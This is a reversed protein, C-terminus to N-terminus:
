CLAPAAVLQVPSQEGVLGKMLNSLEKFRPEVGNLFGGLVMCSAVAAVMSNQPALVVSMFYSLGSTYWTVLVAVACGSLPTLVQVAPHQSM